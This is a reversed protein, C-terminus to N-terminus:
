LQLQLRFPLAANWCIVIFIRYTSLQIIQIMTNEFASQLSLLSQVEQALSLCNKLLQLHHARVRSHWTLNLPSYVHMGKSSLQYTGLLSMIAWGYTVLDRPNYDRFYSLELISFKKEWLTQQASLRYLPLQSWWIKRCKQASCVHERDGTTSQQSNLVDMMIHLTARFTKVRM